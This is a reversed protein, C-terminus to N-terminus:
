SVCLVKYMLWYESTYFHETNLYSIYTSIYNGIAQLLCPVSNEKSLFGEVTYDVTRGGCKATSLGYLSSYLISIQWTIWQMMVNYMTFLFNKTLCCFTM